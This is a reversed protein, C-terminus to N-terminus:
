EGFVKSLATIIREQRKRPFAQMSQLVGNIFKIDDVSVTILNEKVGGERIIKEALANSITVSPIFTVPPAHTEARAKHERRIGKKKRSM